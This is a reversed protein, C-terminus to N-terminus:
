PNTEAKTDEHVRDNSSPIGAERNVRSWFSQFRESWANLDKGVVELLKKQEALTLGDNESRLQMQPRPGVEAEMFANVNGGTWREYVVDELAFAMSLTLRLGTEGDHNLQILLGTKELTTLVPRESCTIVAQWDGCVSDMELLVSLAVQGLPQGALWREFALTQKYAWDWGGSQPDYSSGKGHPERAMELLENHMASWEPKSRDLALLAALSPVAIDASASDPEAREDPTVTAQGGEARQPRPKPLVTIAAFIVLMFFASLGTVLVKTKAGFQRSRWLGVVGVPWFAFLLVIVLLKRDYWRPHVTNMNM